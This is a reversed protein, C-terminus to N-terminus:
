TIKNKQCNNKSWMIDSIVAYLMNEFM